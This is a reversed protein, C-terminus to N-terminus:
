DCLSIAISLATGLSKKGSHIDVKRLNNSDDEGWDVLRSEALVDALSDKWIKESFPQM